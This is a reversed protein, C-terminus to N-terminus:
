KTLYIQSIKLNPSIKSDVVKSDGILLNTGLNWGISSFQSQASLSSFLLVMSFLTVYHKKM